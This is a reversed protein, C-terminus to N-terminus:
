IILSINLNKIFALVNGQLTGHPLNRLKQKFPLMYFQLLQSKHLMLLRNIESM